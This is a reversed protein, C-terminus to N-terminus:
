SYYLMKLGQRWQLVICLIYFRWIMQLHWDWWEVNAYVNAILCNCRDPAIRDPSLARFLYKETVSDRRVQGYCRYARRVLIWWSNWTSGHFVRDVQRRAEDGAASATLQFLFGNHVMHVTSIKPLLKRVESWQVELICCFSIALQISPIGIRLWDVGSSLANIGCMSVPGSVVCPSHWNRRTHSIVFSWPHLRAMSQLGCLLFLYAEGETLM